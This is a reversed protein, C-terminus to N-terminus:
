CKKNGFAKNPQDKKVCITCNCNIETNPGIWELAKQKKPGTNSKEFCFENKMNGKDKSKTCCCCYIHAIMGNNGKSVGKGAPMNHFNVQYPNYINLHVYERKKGDSSMQTREISVSPCAYSTQARQVSTQACPFATPSKSFGTKPRQM